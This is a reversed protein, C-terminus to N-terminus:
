TESFTEEGDSEFGLTAHGKELLSAEDDEFRQGYDNFSLRTSHSTAEIEKQDKENKGM